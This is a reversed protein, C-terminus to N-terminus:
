NARACWRTSARRAEANVADCSGFVVLVDDRVDDVGQLVLFQYVKADAEGVLDLHIDRPGM